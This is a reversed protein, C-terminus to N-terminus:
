GCQHGANQTRAMWGTKGKRASRIKPKKRTKEKKLNKMTAALAEREIYLMKLLNSLVLPIAPSDPDTDESN